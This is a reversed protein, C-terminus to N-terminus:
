SSFGLDGPPQSRGLINDRLNLWELSWLSGFNNPLPGSIYNTAIDFRVLNSANTISPPFPGSINNRGAFLIQLYPLTLGLDVHLRGESENKALSIASLSSINFLQRSVTGVLNNDPIQLFELKLLQAFKM